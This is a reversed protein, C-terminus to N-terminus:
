LVSFLCVLPRRVQPGLFRLLVPLEQMINPFVNANNILNVALFINRKDRAAELVAYRERHWEHIPCQPRSHRTLGFAEELTKNMLRTDELVPPTRPPRHLNFTPPLPVSPHPGSDLPLSLNTTAYVSRPGDLTEPARTSAGYSVILASVVLTTFIVVRRTHDTKPSPSSRTSTPLRTYKPGVRRWLSDM